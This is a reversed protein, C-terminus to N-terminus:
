PACLVFRFAFDVIAVLTQPTAGGENSIHQVGCDVLVTSM